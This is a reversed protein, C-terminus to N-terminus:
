LSVIRPHVRQHEAHIIEIISDVTANLNGDRNVVMYDFEGMRKMEQRATVIRLKLGEPTESKRQTLREILEAESEPALFITLADECLERITSAGQVDIRLIVDQGSQLAQRVQDKPIGKYDNYVIAYELLEGREIMEAFQDKSVFIYDVGPQEDPRPLRTTATVVFYFPM